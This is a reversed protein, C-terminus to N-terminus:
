IGLHHYRIWSFSLDESFFGHFRSFIPRYPRLAELDEVLNAGELAM